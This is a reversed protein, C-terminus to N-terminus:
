PQREEIKGVRAEIRRSYAHMDTLQFQMSNLNFEVSEVRKELRRLIEIMVAMDDRFARVETMLQENQRALFDLTITETM